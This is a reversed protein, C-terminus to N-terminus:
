SLDGMRASTELTHNDDKVVLSVESCKSAVRQVTRACSVRPSLGTVIQCESGKQASFVATMAVPEFRELTILHYNSTIGFGMKVLPENRLCFGWELQFVM